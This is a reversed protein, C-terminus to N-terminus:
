SNPKEVIMTISPETQSFKEFLIKFGIKELDQKLEQPIYFYYYRKGKDRWGVYDEKKKNKFRTSDKNWVSIKAKSGKKLVRYIENLTQKRKKDTPICHLVAICIVSDFFEEEFPLNDADSVTFKINKIKLKEAKEKAYKIMEPSFDLAYIDASTKAFNRGTGCGLDLMKGKQKKVFEINKISPEDKFRYWEEAINNWVKKQNQM